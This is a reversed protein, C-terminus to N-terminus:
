QQTPDPKRNHVGDRNAIYTQYTEVELNYVWIGNEFHLMNKARIPTNTWRGDAYTVSFQIKCIKQFATGRQWYPHDETVGTKRMDDFYVELCDHVFHRFVGLVKAQHLVGRADFAVVKGLPEGNEFRKWFNEIPEEIWNPIWIPTSGVFCSPPEYGGSGDGGGGGGSSGSGGATAVRDVPVDALSAFGFRYQQFITAPDTYEDDIM